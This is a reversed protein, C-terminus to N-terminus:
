RSKTEDALNIVTLGKKKAKTLWKYSNTLKNKVFVIAVDAQKIMWDNRKSIAFRPPTKELGEPFVTDIQLGSIIKENLHSLVVIANADPNSKSIEYAVSQAYYDFSGNNGIYFRISEKELLHLLEIKLKEKVESPADKHGFFTCVM